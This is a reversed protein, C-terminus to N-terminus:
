LGFFNIVAITGGITGLVLYFDRMSLSRNEGVGLAALGERFQKRVEELAATLHDVSKRIFGKVEGMERELTVVRPRVDAMLTEETRLRGNTEKVESTLADLRSDISDFRQLMLEKLAVIQQDVSMRREKLEDM